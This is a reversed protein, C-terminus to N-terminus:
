FPSPTQNSLTSCPHEECREGVLLVCRKVTGCSACVYTHVCMELKLPLPAGSVHGWAADNRHRLLAQARRTAARGASRADPRAAGFESSDLSSLSAVQTPPHQRLPLVLLLLLLLLLLLTPTDTEFM